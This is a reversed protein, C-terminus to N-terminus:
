LLSRKISIPNVSQRKINRKLGLRFTTRRKRRTVMLDVSVAFYYSIALADYAKYPEGMFFANMVIKTGLLAILIRFFSLRAVSLYLYSFILSSFVGTALQYIAGGFYNLAALGVAPGGMTFRINLERMASVLRDPSIMWMLMVLGAPDQESHNKLLDLPTALPAGQIALRDIGYWVHGQLGFARDVIKKPVDEWNYDHLYVYGAAALFLLLLILLISLLFLKGLKPQTERVLILGLMYATFFYIGYLFVSTFKEALLILLFINMVTLAIYKRKVGFSATLLGLFFAGFTILAPIRSLISPLYHWYRFRSVGMLLPSGYVLITSFGLSLVIGLFCTSIYDLKKLKNSSDSLQYRKSIINTLYVSTWFLGLMYVQVFIALRITAGNNHGNVAQESIYQGTEIYLNSIVIPIFSAFSLLTLFFVGRNAKLLFCCSVLFIILSFASYVINNDAALNIGLLIVLCIPTAIVTILFSRSSIPTNM